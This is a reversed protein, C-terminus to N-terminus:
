IGQLILYEEKIKLAEEKLFGKLVTVSRLQNDLIIKEMRNLSDFLNVATPRSTELFKKAEMFHIYFVRFDETDIAKAALYVGIAAVVGTASDARVQLLDIAKWIDEQEKLTLVEIENPLKTQNLIIIASKEDDLTVTEYNLNNKGM